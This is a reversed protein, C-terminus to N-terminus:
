STELLSRVARAGLTVTPAAGAPLLLKQFRLATGIEPVMVSRTTAEIAPPPALVPMDLSPTAEPEPTPEVEISKFAPAKKGAGVSIGTAGRSRSTSRIQRKKKAKELVESVKANRTSVEASEEQELMQLKDGLELAIAAQEEAAAYDGERYNREAERQADEWAEEDKGAKARAHEKVRRAMVVAQSSPKAAPARGDGDDDADEEDSLLLSLNGQLRTVNKNDAGLGGLEDLLGQATRFENGEWAQIAQGFLADARAVKDRDAETTIAIGYNIDEGRSFADVQDPLQDAKWPTYGVPLHATTRLVAVPADVQPLPLERRERRRWESDEFLLALEVPFSLLGGLSEISRRLPVRLAGDRDWTVAAATEGVRLALLKADDPLHVRLAAARDNLVEYRARMLVRGDRSTALTVEAIDVMVEPGQVPVFRLLALAGASRGTGTYSATLSGSVLDRAWSPLETSATATWGTLDPLVEVDGSRALQLTTSSRSVGVPRVVPLEVREEEGQPLPASWTLELAALHEAPQRLSVVIRDGRRDFGGVNAGTVALDSGAGPVDIVLQDLRGRRVLHRVRAHVHLLDEAVTVGLGVEAAVLLQSATAAEPPDVLQVTLRPAAGWLARDVVVGGTWAPVREGRSLMRTTGSAGPLLSVAVPARLPDAPLTASLEIVAGAELWAVLHTGDLAAYLPAPVGDVTVDSVFASADCLRLDLWAPAGEGLLWRAEIQLGPSGDPAENPALTVVRDTVAVPAPSEPSAPPAPQLDEWREGHLSVQANAPTALAVAAVAFILLVPLLLDPEPRM